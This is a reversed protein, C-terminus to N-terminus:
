QCVTVGNEDVVLLPKIQPNSPPVPWTDTIQYRACAGKKQARLAYKSITVGPLQNQSIRTFHLKWGRIEKVRWKEWGLRPFLTGGSGSKSRYAETVEDKTPPDDHSPTGFTVFCSASALAVVSILKHVNM